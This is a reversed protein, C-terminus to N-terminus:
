LSCLNIFMSSIVPPEGYPALVKAAASPERWGLSFSSSIPRNWPLCTASIALRRFLQDSYVLTRRDRDTEADASVQQWDFRRYYETQPNTSNKHSFVVYLNKCLYYSFNEQFLKTFYNIILFFM